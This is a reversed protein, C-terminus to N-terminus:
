SSPISKSSDKAGTSQMSTILINIAFVALLFMVVLANGLSLNSNRILLRPIFLMDRPVSLLRVDNNYSKLGELVINLTVDCFKHIESHRMVRKGKKINKYIIGHVHEYIISFKEFEEIRLFSITPAILNVKQQYSKIRHQFDHVRECIVSSKIFVSLSWLLGTKAYDPVKGNMILLYIDEIKNKNLNKFDPETISVICDNARRAIIETILKHEHGLEWYTKIVQVIKSNLLDSSKTKWARETEWRSTREKIDDDNLIVALFKHLSLVIKEPGSNGKKLYLFDQNILSLAPVKPDRQCSLVLPTTKRPHPSVLIEKHSEWVIDNSLQYKLFNKMQDIHYQHEDRSTCRQRLMDDAIKKLKVEDVNLSVEEMIDQSVQKTPIEDDDLAYSDILDTHIRPSRIPTPFPKIRSEEVNKGKERQKLEYVEDTIEDEEEEEEEEEYVNVPIVVDTFEVELSEKEVRTELRTGLINHKDNRPVSSDDVVHEQGEVMKKIEKSALHKEVLAVNERAEQEEKSKHEALSVQLTDALILEDAKDVTLVPAPPVLRTSKRKTDGQNFMNKLLDDDKLNHYKDRACRSIEPFNTMYHGIIIKIFRPYPISSTSHLLSHYIGEWLLEAYDVHINYIFYYLMQMIQLPPQDWGTVRTTLCKSFIKCLMQWLQLLGNTKFSSSTKLEMTFGLHNKYFPIMDYFSPPPMFRDHNNETAQPLHVITRFDDLTLSLEKRDIIFKNRYKSNYGYDLLQTRMWIVQACCASLSVYKAKVTSMATCDQKKSCWSMLKGGLFQFGRSTSKCDDKCRAHDVDSYAILEFESDKSYWLGKKYSQRMYWFIQKVEKLHKVTPRAQYHACVFTAYAIDPRSATLYMLGVIMRRYTMQDTPTGQLDADLRETEMPKSMSVCEDLGHKKIHAVHAFSEEFDIGEQPRYGKEVLRTKNRVVINKADCKTKWLWKLAIINRGEPRPVLEWVDFDASYEQHLEDAETLSIPSTQEDSTTKIPPAEHEEFNILASNIPTDSSKKEFYEEFMPSFLNDLDEKSPTNM